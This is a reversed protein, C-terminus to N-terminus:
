ANRLGVLRRTATVCPVSSWFSISAIPWTKAAERSLTLNRTTGTLVAAALATARWDSLTSRATMRDSM